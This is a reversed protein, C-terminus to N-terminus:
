MSPYKGPPLDSYFAQRRTGVDQWERDRGDLKYRFRVREPISYSLATYSIEIDRTHPPLRVPGHIGYEKRDARIQEVFVPPALGRQGLRNPDFMQVVSDNAFWLRGDPSKTVEPHFTNSRPMAGDLADLLQTRIVIDPQRWWRQLESDAIGILGCKTYLWLTAHNDRIVSYVLDCPLGNKM